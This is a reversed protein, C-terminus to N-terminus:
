FAVEIGSYIWRGPLKVGEIDAQNSNTLNSVGLFLDMSYDKISWNKELYLDINFFGSRKPSEQYSANFNLMVKKFDISRSFVFEHEQYNAIYKSFEANSKYNKDLYGYTLKGGKWEFWVELGDTKSYSVNNANWADPVSDKVWDILDYGFMKFVSVGYSCVKNEKKYGVEFNLCEETMLDSNGVNAPSLYYLETFSPVRYNRQVSLFINEKNSISYGLFLGPSIEPNYDSYDDVRLSLDYNFRELYPGALSCFLAINDRSHNGLNTSKIDQYSYEAGLNLRARGINVGFPLKFGMLHNIHINKFWDPRARDLIFKDWHRRYYFKPSFSRNGDQFEFNLMYLRTKTHEEQRSYNSSYFSSAGFDKKNQAIMIEPFGHLENFIWKSFFSKTKFDTEPRYSSASSKEFGVHFSLLDNIKDMSLNILHLQKQGYLTKFKFVDKVPSATIFNVTGGMANSGYLSSSGGRMIEVKDLDSVALPLDLNFHGAQPDNLSVGDVMVVNQEFGMGRIHLDQQIGFRGRMKLDVGAVEGIIETPFLFGKADLDNKDIVEINGFGMGELYEFSENLRIEGLDVVEEAISVQASLLILFLIIRIKM